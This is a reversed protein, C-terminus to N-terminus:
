RSFILENVTKVQLGLPAYDGKIGLFNETGNQSIYDVMQWTSSLGAATFRIKTGSMFINWAPTPLNNNLSPTSGSKEHLDEYSLSNTSAQSSAPSLMTSPIMTNFISSSGAGSSGSSTTSPVTLSAASAGNSGSSGSSTTPVPTVTVFTPTNLSSSLFPSTPAYLSTTRIPSYPGQYLTTDPTSYSFVPSNMFKPSPENPTYFPTPTQLGASQPTANGMGSPGHGNQHGAQPPRGCYSSSLSSFTLNYSAQHALSHGGLSSSHANEPTPHGNPDLTLKGISPGVGLGARSSVSMQSDSYLPLM